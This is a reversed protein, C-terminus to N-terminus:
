PKYASQTLKKIRKTSLNTSLNRRGKRQMRFSETIDSFPRLEHTRETLGPKCSSTITIRTATRAKIRDVMIRTVTKRIMIRTKTAQLLMLATASDTTIRITIRTIIM